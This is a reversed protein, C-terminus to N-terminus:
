FLHNQTLLQTMGFGLVQTYTVGEFYVGWSPSSLSVSLCVSVSLPSLVFVDGLLPSCVPPHAGRANLEPLSLRSRWWADGDERGQSGAEEQGTAERSALSRESGSAFGGARPTGQSRAPRVGSTETGSLNRIRPSQAQPHDEGRGRGAGSGLRRRPRARGRPCATVAGQSPLSRDQGRSLVM